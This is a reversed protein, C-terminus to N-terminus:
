HRPPPPDARPPAPPEAPRNIAALEERLVSRLDDMLASRMAEARAAESEAALRASSGASAAIFQRKLRDHLLEALAAGALVGSIDAGWDLWEAGRGVSPQVLEIVGGYAIALPVAWFWRRSDTLILPFILTAFAIFHYVKDVGNVQPMRPSVPFLTALAIILAFALGLALGARQWLRDQRSLAGDAGIAPSRMETQKAKGM